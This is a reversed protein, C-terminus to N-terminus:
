KYKKSNILQEKTKQLNRKPPNQSLLRVKYGLSVQFRLDKQRLKGLAPIVPTHGRV